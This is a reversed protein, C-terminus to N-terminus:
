QGSYTALERRRFIGVALGCLVATWILIISTGWFVSGWSLLRGDVLRTTPRLEAYTKFGTSIALGMARVPIKWYVVNGDHDLADYYQISNALFGAGEAAIFVSFAVLCAVPFSLFTAATIGLIALFALKLWLVCAVRVFNMQFSGSSYSLELGGPPFSMTEPNPIVGMSGPPDDMPVLAGNFVTMTVTGDESIVSPYLSLTHSPGLSVNQPPHTVGDFNFTLRYLVGPPNGGSDIRYRLTVMSNRRKAEGLGEIIFDRYDGPAISRYSQLLSKYLDSKIKEFTEADAAFNPDRAQMDIIYARVGELFYEDNPGVPPTPEAVKNAALVQTELILRDETALSQGVLVQVTEGMAPQKRLYETFLFIGACSVTLLVAALAMVGLWKGLIYQWASVPKTMTQWIQRDRQEFAVTGVAFFLILIAIIWYSGGTGYQLFSQVRYRLPTTSDLLGPLAAMGFILLVIFVLAVRMRVAEILVNRAIGMVPGPGSFVLRMAQLLAVFAATLVVIGALVRSMAPFGLAALPLAVGLAIGLLALYSLGLGLWVVTIAVLTILVLGVGVNTPNARRDALDILMQTGADLAGFSQGSARAAQEAAALEAAFQAGPATVAVFYVTFATIALGLCVLSAVIKFPMSQQLRNLRPLLERINV